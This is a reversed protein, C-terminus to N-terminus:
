INKNKIIKKSNDTPKNTPAIEFNDDITIGEYFLGTCATPLKTVKVFDKHCKEGEPDTDGSYRCPSLGIALFYFFLDFIITNWKWIFSSYSFECWSIIWVM